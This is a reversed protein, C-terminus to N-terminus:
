ADPMRQSHLFDFMEELSHFRNAPIRGEEMAIGEEIAAITEANFSPNKACIPCEWDADIAVEERVAEVIAM